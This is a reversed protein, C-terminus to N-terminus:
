SLTERISLVAFQRMRGWLRLAEARELGTRLVQPLRRRRLSNAAKRERNWNPVVEDGAQPSSERLVRIVWEAGWSSLQELVLDCRRDGGPLGEPRFGAELARLQVELAAWAATAAPRLALKTNAAFRTRMQELDARSRGRAPVLVPVAEFLDKAEKLGLSSIERIAKITHIKYERPYSELFFDYRKDIAARWAPELGAHLARHEAQLSPFAPDGEDLEALRVELRLYRGRLDDREDLWDAYVLRHTDDDPDALIAQLFGLETTM